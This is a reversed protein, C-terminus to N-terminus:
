HTHSFSHEYTASDAQRLSTADDLVESDCFMTLPEMAWQLELISEALHRPEGCSPLQAEEAWYQLVNTYASTKKPQLLQYDQSGM